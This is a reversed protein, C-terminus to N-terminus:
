GRRRFVKAFWGGVNAGFMMLCPTFFLTLITAFMLGGAISTSLQTWWQSAPSGFTVERAIIDINMQFVMPLLGLVGATATLLIPRTRQVGTMILSQRIDYGNERLHNYTDIFIINNKVVIGALAIVGIGCMVVGFPQNTIILGLLVGVTSFFVASMVVMAKSITSFQIVFVVMMCSLALIFAGMLFKGAAQQEEDEGKFKVFVMPNVPNDALLKALQKVKNDALVDRALDAKFTLVRMGDSRDVVGVETAPERKVFNSIPVLGQSSPIKLRDLQLLTRNEEPFRVIFDIEDTADDPRYAGVKVGNTVLRVMAGIQAVNVDYKAAKERDVRLEWQLNPIPRSDEVDVFDKDGEILKMFRAFDAALLDPYQSRFQIQIPKGTPPGGQQKQSQVIIGPIDAARQKIEDLIDDAKRRKNWHIFEVTIQGITDESFDGQGLNGSRAYFTKIEKMDSIRAEVAQIIKDKEKTSLNGRAKIIVAANEPEVDPFFEMGTGNKAYYTYVSAMLMFIILVFLAPRKLMSSIVNAYHRSFGQLNELHGEESALMAAKEEESIKGVGGIYKGIAPLFFLAMLLSSMLTFIVTIPMYKMFQGVVGPWFLLPMFVIVPTITSAVVPWAMRKAAMPYAQHAPVGEVMKRDAYECVIIADDVLMGVVLILSFLVVINLTVGLMNLCVIGLLFSGPISCAVLISSRMGMTSLVLIMVLMTAFIVGNVLDRVMTRIENSTDQAYIVNIGGQWVPKVREVLTKVAAVTEIINAGTRKKVQLVVARQGNVRAFGAADKFTRRIDAVDAVTVVQQNFAKVPVSLLEKVNEILGPVQVAYKGNEADLAGAAILVNNLRVQNFVKDPALGYSEMIVPKVVIDVVEEREGAIEVDLVGNINEIQDKLAKASTILTREDVNGTLIVNLVPFLSFTVETVTPEDADQPLDPKAQDVKDRVDRLAKESNVGARFELIVNGFGEVAHSKMEKVGEISALKKELPRLILREGDRPSAGELRVSVYIVPIKVDPASELPMSRFSQMGLIFIMFLLMFVAAPKALVADIIKNM